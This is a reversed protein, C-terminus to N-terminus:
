RLTLDIYIRKDKVKENEKRLGDALSFPMEAPYVVLSVRLNSVIGGSILFIKGEVVKRIGISYGEM